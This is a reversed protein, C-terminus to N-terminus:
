ARSIGRFIGPEVGNWSGDKATAEEDRRAGTGGTKNLSTIEGTRDETDAGEGAEGRLSGSTQAVHEAHKTDASANKGTEKGGAEGRLNQRLKTCQSGNTSQSTLM